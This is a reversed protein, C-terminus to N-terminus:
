SEPLKGEGMWVTPMRAGGWDVRLGYQTSIERGLHAIVEWERPSLDARRRSHFIFAVDYSASQCELPIGMKAMRRLLMKIFVALKPSATSLDTFKLKDKHHQSQLWSKDRLRVM